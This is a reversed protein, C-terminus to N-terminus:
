AVKDALRASALKDLIATIHQVAELLPEDSAPRCGHADVLRRRFEARFSEGFLAMARDVIEVTLKPTASLTPDGTAMRSLTAADIELDIAASKQSIGCAKLAEFFVARTTPKAVDSPAPAGPLSARAPRRRDVGSRREDHSNFHTPGLAPAFSASM